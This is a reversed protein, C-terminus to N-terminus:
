RGSRFCPSNISGQTGQLPLTAEARLVSFHGGTLGLLVASLGYGARSARLESMGPRAAALRNRAIEIRDYVARLDSLSAHGSRAARIAYRIQQIPLGSFLSLADDCAMSSVIPVGCHFLYTVRTTMQIRAGFQGLYTSSAPAQPFTVSTAVNNYGFAGLALRVLPSSSGGIASLVSSQTPDVDGRLEEYSPSTALLPLGAAFRITDLRAGGGSYVAGPDGGSASGGGGAGGGSGGSPLGTGSPAGSGGVLGLLAGVPDDSRGGGNADNQAAGDYRYECEPMVVIAARAATNAAHQVVLHASYMLALQMMGLVMVFFPIFAVLFEVYVAGGTDRALSRKTTCPKLRDTAM